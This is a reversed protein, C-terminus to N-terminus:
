IYRHYLSLQPLTCQRVNEPERRSYASLMSDLICPRWRLVSWVMLWCNIEKGDASFRCIQVIHVHRNKLMLKKDCCAKGACLSSKNLLARVPAMVRCINTNRVLSAPNKLDDYHSAQYGPNQSNLPPLSQPFPQSLTPWNVLLRPDLHVSGTVALLTELYTFPIRFPLLPSDALPSLFCPSQGM